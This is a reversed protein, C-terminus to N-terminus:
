TVGVLAERVAPLDFEVTTGRGEGSLLRVPAEHQDLIEKVIALGLGVGGYRRSSSGDAQRFRDFVYPQAEAPIGCGDDAVSVTARGTESSEVRVRVHGGFEVFKIANSLLNTVVHGIMDRDATVELPEPPMLVTLDVGKAQAQPRFIEMCAAVLPQLEFRGVRVKVRGSDLREIQLLDEIQQHLREVNRLVTGMGRAQKQTVPGLRGDLVMETYGQIAVLPTKLEHTVNAVFESRLRDLERLRRNAAELEGIKGRLSDVLTAIHRDKRARVSGMAGFLVAFLLPHLAFFLHVPHEWFIAAGFPRGQAWLDIGVSFFPIPLGLLFGVLGYANRWPLYTRPEWLAHFFEAVPHSAEGREVLRRITTGSPM